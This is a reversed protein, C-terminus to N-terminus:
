NVLHQTSQRIVLESNIRIDKQQGANEKMLDLLLFCAEQVLEQAPTHVTTLPPNAFAAWPIDDFGVISLDKPIQLGAEQIASLAGVAVNDSAIFVATFPKGGDLLSQM